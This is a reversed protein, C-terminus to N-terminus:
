RGKKASGVDQSHKEALEAFNKDSVKKAIEQLKKLAEKESTEKGEEAKILIHRARVQENQTFRAKNENYFKQIEGKLSEIDADTVNISQAAATALDASSFDVYELNRKEQASQLQKKLELETPLLSNELVAQLRGSAASKRISTEFQGPTLRNARLTNEYNLRQFRGNEQFAPIDFIIERIEQDTVWVGADRSGQYIVERDILQELAQGRLFAQIGQNSRGGFRSEIRTVAERFEALSITSNNVQAAVGGGAVGLQDPIMGLFVFVLIILGFLVVAIIKKGMGENQGDTGLSKKLKDIM